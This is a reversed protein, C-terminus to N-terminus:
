LSIYRGRPYKVQFSFSETKSEQPQLAFKWTLLGKKTDYKATNTIIDDLRIEKNESKPIRDM